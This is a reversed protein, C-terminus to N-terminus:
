GKYIEHAVPVTTLIENARSPTLLGLSVLTNIGLITDARLLDVFTAAAMDDLYVKLPLGQPTQSAVYLAVKEAMTFRNRFALRTITMIPSGSHGSPPNFIVGNFIWGVAPIPNSNTVDVIQQYRANEYLLEDDTLDRVDMVINDKLLAYIM